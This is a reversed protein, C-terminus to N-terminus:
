QEVAQTSGDAMKVAIEHFITNIANILMEDTIFKKIGAPIFAYARSVVFKLREQGKKTGVIEKEAQIILKKLFAVTNEDKLFKEVEAKKRYLIYLLCVIIVIIAAYIFINKTM